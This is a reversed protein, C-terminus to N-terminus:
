CKSNKSSRSGTSKSQNFVASCPSRLTTGNLSRSYFSAPLLLQSSLGLAPGLDVEGLAEALGHVAILEDHVGVRAAPGEVAVEAFELLDVLRRDSLAGELPSREGLRARSRKRIAQAKVSRMKSRKSKAEASFSECAAGSERGFQSFAEIKSGFRQLPFCARPM